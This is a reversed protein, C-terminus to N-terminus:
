FTLVLSSALTVLTSSSYVSSYGSALKYSIRNMIRNCWAAKQLAPCAAALLEYARWLAIRLRM